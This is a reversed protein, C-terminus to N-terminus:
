LNALQRALLTARVTNFQLGFPIESPFSGFSEQYGGLRSPGPHYPFDSHWGSTGDTGAGPRLIALGPSHALKYDARLYSRIIWMAVPHVSAKIALASRMVLPTDPAPEEDALARLEACLDPALLAPICVHGEQVLSELFTSPLADPGWEVTFPGFETDSSELVAGTVPHTFGGETASWVASDDVSAVCALTGTATSALYEGGEVRLMSYRVPNPTVTVVSNTGELAIRAATREDSAM